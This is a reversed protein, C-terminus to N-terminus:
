CRPRVQPHLLRACLAGSVVDGATMCCPTRCPVHRDNLLEVDRYAAGKAPHITTVGKSCAHRLRHSCYCCGTACTCVCFCFSPQLSGALANSHRRWAPHLTQTAAAAPALRSFVCRGHQCKWLRARTAANRRPVLWLRRCWCCRGWASRCSGALLVCCRVCAVDCM